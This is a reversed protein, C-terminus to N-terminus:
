MEGERGGERGGGRRGCFLFLSYQAGRVEKSQFLSSGERRPVAHISVVQVIQSTFVWCALVCIIAWSLSTYSIPSSPPSPLLSPPIADANSHSCPRSSFPTTECGERVGRGGIGGEGGEGWGESAALVEKGGDAGIAGHTHEVQTGEDVGCDDVFGGLQGREEAEGPIFL